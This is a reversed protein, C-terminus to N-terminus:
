FHEQVSNGCNKCIFNTFENAEFNDCVESSRKDNGENLFNLVKTADEESMSAVAMLLIERNKMYYNKFNEDVLQPSHASLLGAAVNKKALSVANFLSNVAM